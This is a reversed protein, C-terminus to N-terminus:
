SLKFHQIATIIRRVTSTAHEHWPPFITIITNSGIADKECTATPFVLVVTDPYQNLNRSDIIASKCYTSGYLGRVSLVKATFPTQCLSEKPFNPNYRHCKWLTFDSAAKRQALVLDREFGNKLVNPRVKERHDRSLPSTNVELNVSSSNGLDCLEDDSSEDISVRSIVARSIGSTLDQECDDGSNDDIECHSMNTARKRRKRAGSGNANICSIRESSSVSTWGKWNPRTVEMEPSTPLTPTAVRRQRDEIKSASKVWGPSSSASSVTNRKTSSCSEPCAQSISDITEKQSTSSLDDFDLIDDVAESHDFMNWDLLRSGERREDQFMTEGLGIGGSSSYTM